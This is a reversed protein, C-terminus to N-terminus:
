GPLRRQHVDEAAEIMRAFAGVRDAAAVCVHEVAVFERLQTALVEAEHELAVVQQRVDVGDRVEFHGRDIGARRTRFPVCACAFQECTEFVRITRVMPGPLQGAALLAHADRTRQHVAALHDEGVFRGAREVRFRSTIRMRCSSFASPWVITMTVCSLATARARLADDLDAVALDDGVPRVAM